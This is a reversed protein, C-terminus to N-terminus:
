LRAVARVVNAIDPRTQNAIWMLSGVTERYSSDVVPNEDSVLRLDLSPSAPIPSANTIGFRGIVKRIFQAQSIKLTGKERHRKYESGMYWTVEGLHKTPFRKNFNEVVSDTVEKTASIRSTM